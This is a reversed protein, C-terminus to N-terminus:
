RTGVSQALKRRLIAIQGEINDLVQNRRFMQGDTTFDFRGVANARKL